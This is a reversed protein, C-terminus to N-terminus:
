KINPDACEIGSATVVLSPTRNGQRLEEPTCARTRGYGKKAMCASVGDGIQSWRRVPSALWALGTKANQRDVASSVSADCGDVAAQYAPAATDTRPPPSYGCAAATCLSLLSAIRLPRFMAAM